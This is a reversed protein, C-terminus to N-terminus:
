ARGPDGEVVYWHEHRSWQRCRLCQTEDWRHGCGPCVGGTDFTNWVHLCHCQWRDDARPAWGCRPCRIRVGGQGAAPGEQPRTRAGGRDGTTRLLVPAAM